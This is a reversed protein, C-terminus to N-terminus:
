ARRRDGWDHGCTKCHWTKSEDPICGALILKGAREDRELEPTPMGYLIPVARKGKCKPCSAPKANAAQQRQKKM